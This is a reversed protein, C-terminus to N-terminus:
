NKISQVIKEIDLTIEKQEGSDMDKIKVINKELEPKEFIIVTSIKKKDAYKIKKGLDSENLYIETTIENKRLEEIIPFSKEQTEADFIFLIKSKKDQLPINLAKLAEIIRDIGFSFGVCEFDENSFMNTLQDYRGGGIVSGFERAQNLKFEFIFGTYYDLGRALAPDIKINEETIGYDKLIQLLNELKEFENPDIEKLEIKAEDNNTTNLLKKIQDITDNSLELKSLEQIVDDAGIKDLKDIIQLIRNQDELKINNKSFFSMFFKRSNLFITFDDIGLEKLVKFGLYIIEAESQVSSTGVIDADFQCFERFRGKQPKEARWVQGIQYRKFPLALERYNMAIYRALPVTLDYRLAIEREGLDKFKYILKEGESGYKGLLIDSYELAPTELPSFGFLRCIKEIRRTLNIKDEAQETPLDRFGQLIRPEIKKDM